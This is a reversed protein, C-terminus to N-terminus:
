IEQNLKNLLHRTEIYVNEGAAYKELLELMDPAAAILKANAKDRDNEHTLPTILCVPEGTHPDPWVALAPVLSSYDFPFTPLFM